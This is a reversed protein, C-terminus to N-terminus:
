EIAQERTAGGKIAIEIAKFDKEAEAEVSEEKGIAKKVKSKIIEAEMETESDYDDIVELSGRGIAFM